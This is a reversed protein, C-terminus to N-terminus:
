RGPQTRDRPADEVEQFLAQRLAELDLKGAPSRPLEGVVSCAAAREIGPLGANFRQLLAPAEAEAAGSAVLVMRHGRRRDPVAVVTGPIGLARRHRELRERSVWEGSIKVLDDARGLFRLRVGGEAGGEEGEGGGGGEERLEARDGSRFWGEEDRAPDFAWGGGERRLYGEFLMPGRLGLRGEGDLRAEVGRLLPLWELEADVATAIQSSAESMGYTAWLPWGLERGRVAVAPDIPGGGLLVGRLSRPARVGQGVLDHLHTPTLSALTAGSEEVGRVFARGERRWDGPDGRRVRSGTVQARAYIALGGVHFDPLQCYALDEGTIACREAVARASALLAARHLLVFKAEGSSGSTALITAARLGLDGRVFDVLGAADIPRAPNLRLDIGEGEWYEPRAPDSLEPTEM